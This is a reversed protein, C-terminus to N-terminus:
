DDSSGRRVDVDFNMFMEPRIIITRSFPDVEIDNLDEIIWFVFESINIMHREFSDPGSQVTVTIRDGGDDLAFFGTLEFLPEGDLLNIVALRRYLAFDNAENVIDRSVRTAQDECGTLFVSAALIGAALLAKKM